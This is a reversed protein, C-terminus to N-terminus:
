EARDDRFAAAGVGPALVRVLKKERWPRVVGYAIRVAFREVETVFFTSTEPRRRGPGAASLSM